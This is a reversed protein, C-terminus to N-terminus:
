ATASPPLFGARFQASAPRRSDAEGLLQLFWLRVRDRYYAARRRGNRLRNRRAGCIRGASPVYRVVGVRWFNGEDGDGKHGSLPGKADFLVQVHM